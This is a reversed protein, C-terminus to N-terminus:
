RGNHSQIVSAEAVELEDPASVFNRAVSCFAYTVLLMCVGWVALVTLLVFM